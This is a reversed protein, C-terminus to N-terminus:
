RQGGGGNFKGAASVVGRAIIEEAAQGARACADSYKKLEDQTMRRLVWDALEHEPNEPRGIGIKVRAFADSQIQYIISKLGNHGGASGNARVRLKYEPMDADDSLVIVREPAIKYFAAAERVAEGSLNMYTQPKIIVVPNGAVEGTGYLAKWKLKNVKIGNADALSDAAMFGVNHRTYEYRSGPNGLGVILWSASASSKERRYRVICANRSGSNCFSKAASHTV